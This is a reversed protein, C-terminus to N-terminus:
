VERCNPLFLFYGASSLNYAFITEARTNHIVQIKFNKEICVVRINYVPQGEYREHLVYM